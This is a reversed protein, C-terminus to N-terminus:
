MLEEDLRARIKTCEEDREERTIKGTVFALTIAEMDERLEALLEERGGVRDPENTALTEIKRM